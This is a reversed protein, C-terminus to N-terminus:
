FDRQVRFQGKWVGLDTANAADDTYNVYAIAPIIRVGKAPRYDFSAEIQTIKWTKTKDAQDQQGYVAALNVFNSGVSQNVSALISWGRSLDSTDGAAYDDLLNSNNVAGATSAALAPSAGKNNYGLYSIAGNAYAGQLWFTTGAIPVIKLGAMAAYGEANGGASSAAHNQHGAVAVQATVPGAAYGVVGVLDPIQAAGINNSTAKSRYSADEISLTATVPGVPLAYSLAPTIQGDDSNVILTNSGNFFAFASDRLGATLGGLQVYANRVYTQATGASNHEARIVGYGRLVGIETASRADVGLQFRQVFSFPSKTRDNGGSEKTTPTYATNARVLGSLKLCTDSGPLTIFGAGQAECVQVYSVPAPTDKKKAPANGATASTAVLAAASAFFFLKRPILM